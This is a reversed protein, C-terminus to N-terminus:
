GACWGAAAAALRLQLMVGRWTKDFIKLYVRAGGRRRRRKTAHTM